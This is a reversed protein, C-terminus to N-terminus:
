KVLARVSDPVIYGLESAIADNINFAYETVTRIPMDSPKKGNVLIEFAMQASIKGLEKYDIGYTAVGSKAHPGLEGWVIPKHLADTEKNTSHILASANSMINDTPVYIAGCPALKKMTVGIDNKDSVGAEVLEIGDADCLAKLIDRQVFSNSESTSFLIGFKNTNEKDLLKMLSYQEKMPNMDSTGTVNGLALLKADYQTVATGVVPINKDKAANAASIVAPTAIAFIMDPNKGVLTSTNQTLMDTQGSAEKENYSVTKGVESMLKTLEEKFGESARNLADTDIYKSIGIKYDASNCGVLVFCMSAIMIVCLVIIILKKM